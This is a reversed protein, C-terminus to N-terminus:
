WYTQEVPIVGCHQEDDTASWLLMQVVICHMFWLDVAFWLDLRLFYKSQYNHANKHM